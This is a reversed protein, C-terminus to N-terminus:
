TQPPTRNVHRADRSKQLKLAMASFRQDLPTYILVGINCFVGWLYTLGLVSALAEGGWV